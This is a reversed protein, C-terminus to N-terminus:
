GGQTIDKSWPTQDFYEDLIDELQKSKGNNEVLNEAEERAKKMIDYDELFNCAYFSNQFGHQSSSLLDGPGRIKLDEEVLEFGDLIDRFAELRRRGKDTNPSGIAFCYSKQGSRGIRGRLQHLQTLGFHDAEDVVLINAQPIDIGVEIVTTSVIADLDKNRFKEITEAKEQRSLKGHLLGLELGKLQNEALEERMQVAAGSDVKESEEILPFVIFGQDGGHLKRRVYEYVQDRKGESVWYTKIQKEGGPFEELRSIDFEGYVTSTITRPIPTASLILRNVPRYDDRLKEKQAVGFRQEEDIIVLGLDNFDVREELLAHTGVLIDVEGADLSALLATRRSDTTNGTLLAVTVQSQDFIKTLNEYHQEALVTTPAMLATQKDAQKVLFAAGAAVLTKGTGVDGQLLRNMPKSSRLDELIETTAREQDDTLSFPIVRVFDDLKKSNLDIELTKTEEESKRTVLGYYFLYLESFALSRRAKSFDEPKQPSHVRKLAKRRNWLGYKKPVQDSYYEPVLPLFKSLNKTIIWNIKSQSLNETAPYIPVLKGTKNKKGTPEWVPNEIQLEGYEKNVEGYVAIKDGANLQNHIWPQNYWIAYIVGTGDAIASKVLKLNRRPQIITTKQVKGTITCEDGSKLRDIKKEKQRDEIQRPFHFLLDRVTNIGLKNLEKARKDGVGVAQEVPGNLDLDKKETGEDQPSKGQLINIVEEVAEQREYPQKDEYGSLLNEVEPDDLLTKSLSELGGLVADNNFGTERELELIKFLKSDKDEKQKDRRNM